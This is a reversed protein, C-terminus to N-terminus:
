RGEMTAGPEILEAGADGSRSTHARRIALRARFGHRLANRRNAEIRAPTTM